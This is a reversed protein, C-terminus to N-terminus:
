QLPELNTRKVVFFSTSIADAIFEDQRSQVNSRISHLAPIEDFLVM